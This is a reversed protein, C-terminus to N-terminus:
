FCRFVQPREERLPIRDVGPFSSITQTRQAKEWEADKKSREAEKAQQRQNYRCRFLSPLIVKLHSNFSFRWFQFSITPTRSPGQKRFFFFFVFIGNNRKPFNRFRTEAWPSMPRLFPIARHLRCFFGDIIGLVPRRFHEPSRFVSFSQFSM